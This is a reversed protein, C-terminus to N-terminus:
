KTEPPVIVWQALKALRELLKKFVGRKDTAPALVVVYHAANSPLPRAELDALYSRQVEKGSAHDIRTARVDRAIVSVVGNQPEGQTFTPGGIPRCLVERDVSPELDRDSFASTSVVRQGQATVTYHNKDPLVRRYFIEDDIVSDNLEDAVVM